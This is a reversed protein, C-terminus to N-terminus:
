RKLQNIMSLMLDTTQITRSSAEFARQTSIMDTFEVTMDTNSMELANGMIRTSPFIEGATGISASGSNPSVAFFNGSEKQLGGDNSFKAMVVQGLIESQGNTFTGWIKGEYDVALGALEGSKYGDQSSITVTNPGAFQTLSGGLNGPEVLNIAIDKPETEDFVQSGLAANLDTATINLTQPTDLTGDANFTLTTADLAVDNGDISAAVSFENANATKTFTLNLTRAGGQNDIITISTKRETGEPSQSNLNGQVTLTQTQKPESIVSPDIKLNEVTRNLVNNGDADKVAKGDADIETNYGQLYAGSSADVLFGDRDRTIAGARSYLENGNLNYVFFGDGQLALDLPRQTSELAGQSMNNIVSGMRVGLGIQMPNVGGAGNGSRNDPSKGLAQIQNFQEVFVARGSKFGITNSNAINNAIVDFRQQHARMSSAGTALSRAIAM